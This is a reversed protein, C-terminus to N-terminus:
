TTVQNHHAIFAERTHHPMSEWKQRAMVKADAHLGDWSDDAELMADHHGIVSHTLNSLAASTAADHPALLLAHGALASAALLFNRQAYTARRPSGNPVRAAVAAIIESGPNKNTGIVICGLRPFFDLKAMEVYRALVRQMVHSPNRM